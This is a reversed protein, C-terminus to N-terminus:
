FRPIEGMDAIPDRILGLRMYATVAMREAQPPSPRQFNTPRSRATLTSPPTNVVTWSNIGKEMYASTLNIIFATPISKQISLMKYQVALRKLQPDGKAHM